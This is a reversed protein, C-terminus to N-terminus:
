KSKKTEFLRAVAMIGEDITSSSRSRSAIGSASEQAPSSFVDSGGQKVKSKVFKDIAETTNLDVPLPPAEYRM